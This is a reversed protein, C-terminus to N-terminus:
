RNDRAAGLGDYAAYKYLESLTPYNFVGEIFTDLTGGLALCTTAIHILETAREGVIHAGLLRRDARAFVLKLLGDRGGALHARPNDRYFARGVGVDLGKTRASEETEGVMALEPITYVGLPQVPSLRTKYGLDFAHCMALRGQEMSISALGPFGVVDGAAYIHPVATQYHANVPLRGRADAELGAAALDLGETRGDRGASVLVQDTVVSTGDALMTALGRSTREVRAVHAGRRVDIGLHEFSEALLGSVEGDVFPLLRPGADLLVVHAGLPAFMSAYECGIVGGGIVALSAPVRGAGLIKDTDFVDPDDFPIGAPRAPRSGTAVLIVDATLRETSSGSEVLLTHPDEFRAWGRVLTVGHRGLNTEVRAIEANVLPEHRCLLEALTADAPVTVRVAGPRQRFGALALATERLNKSPLACSQVRAGGLLAHGEVIAARKGFYAAQAAAKEGAPGTGIVILDYSM